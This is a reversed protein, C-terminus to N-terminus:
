SSPQHVTTASNSRNHMAKTSASGRGEFKLTRRRLRAEPGLSQHTGACSCIAGCLNRGRLAQHTSPTVQMCMKVPIAPTTEKNRKLKKGTHTHAKEKNKRAQTWQVTEMFFCLCGFLCICFSSSFFCSLFFFSFCSSSLVTPQHIMMHLSEKKPLAMQRCGDTWVVLVLSM